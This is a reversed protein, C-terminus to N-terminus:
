LPTRLHSKNRMREIWDVILVGTDQDEARHGGWFGPFAAKVIGMRLVTEPADEGCYEALRDRLIVALFFRKDQRMM